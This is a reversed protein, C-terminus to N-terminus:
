RTLPFYKERNIHQRHKYGPHVSGRNHGRSIKFFNDAYSKGMTEEIRPANHHDSSPPKWSSKGGKDKTEQRSLKNLFRKKDQQTGSESNQPNQRPKQVPFKLPSRESISLPM